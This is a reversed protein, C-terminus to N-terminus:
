VFNKHQKEKTEYKQTPIVSTASFAKKFYDM